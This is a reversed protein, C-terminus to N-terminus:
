GADEYVVLVLGELEVCPDQAVDLFGIRWYLNDM